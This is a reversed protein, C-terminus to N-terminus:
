IDMMVSQALPMLGAGCFGQLLRFAVIEPLSTAAGCLVSAVTFGVISALMVRKRGFRESFFSTLALGIASAVVYSTIVWSIQDQGASLAGQMRPLAVNAITADLSQMLTSLIVTGSILAARGRTVALM